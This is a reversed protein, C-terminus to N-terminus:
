LILIDETRARMRGLKELAETLAPINLFEGSRIECFSYVNVDCLSHMTNRYLIYCLTLNRVPFRQQDFHCPVNFIILRFYVLKNIIYSSLPGKQTYNSDMFVTFPCQFFYTSIHKYILNQNLYPNIDVQYIFLIWLIYSNIFCKLSLRCRKCLFEFTWYFFLSKCLVM